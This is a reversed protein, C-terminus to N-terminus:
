SNASFFLQIRLFIFFLLFSILFIARLFRLLSCFLFTQIAVLEQFLPPFISAFRNSFSSNNVDNDSNSVNNHNDFADADHADIRLLECLIAGNANRWAEYRNRSFQCTTFSQMCKRSSFGFYRRIASKLFM